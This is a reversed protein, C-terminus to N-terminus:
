RDEYGFWLLMGNLFIIFQRVFTNLGKIECGCPTARLLRKKKHTDMIGPMQDIRKTWWRNTRKGTTSFERQPGASTKRRLAMRGGKGKRKHKQGRRGSTTIIWNRLSNMCIPRPMKCMNDTSKNRTKKKQEIYHGVLSMNSALNTCEVLHIDGKFPRIHLKATWQSFFVCCAM